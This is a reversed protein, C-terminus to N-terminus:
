PMLNAPPADHAAAKLVEPPSPFAQYIAAGGAELRQLLHQSPNLGRVGCASKLAGMNFRAKRLNLVDIMLRELHNEQPPALEVVAHEGLLGRM